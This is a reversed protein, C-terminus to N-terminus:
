ICICVYVYVRLYVRTYVFVCLFYLLIGEICLTRACSTNDIEVFDPVLRYSPPHPCWPDDLDAEEEDANKDHVHSVVASDTDDSLDSHTRTDGNYIDITHTSFKDPKCLNVVICMDVVGFMIGENSLDTTAKAYQLKWFLNKETRLTQFRLPTHPLISQETNEKTCTFAYDFLDM